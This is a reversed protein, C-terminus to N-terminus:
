ARRRPAVEHEMWGILDTAYDSWRRFSRARAEAGLRDRAVRDRVLTGMATALSSADVQDLPVCGGGRASEALAGRNLCVCPRGHALSELVPLGFGEMISPYVTFACTAYAASLAEDDANADHRLPRGAAQLARLRALAPGATEPRPLGVLQLEFDVGEAWLREAAELLALHNKRGEISGVCLVVPRGAASPPTPRLPLEVALPLTQVVPMREVGLWRWYDVLTARSDESVAAIGDFALLEQLYAPFRAVTKVPTFEPLKLPIGDHFLAVCPGSTAARLAPFSAAVTPSFLEPVIVGASAPLRPAGRRDWWLRALRGRLRASWPWNAGRTRAPETAALNAQEWPELTRWTGRWPDHTVAVAAGELAAALSRAVRQIGTRARTHSTHSLDLLYPAAM